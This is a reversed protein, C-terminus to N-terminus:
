EFISRGMTAVCLVALGVLGVLGATAPDTSVYSAVVDADYFYIAAVILAILKM